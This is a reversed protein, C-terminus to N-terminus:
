PGRRPPAAGRAARPMQGIAARGGQGAALLLPHREGPSQCGSGRNSSSSSGSEASSGFSRRPICTSSLRMWRSVPM